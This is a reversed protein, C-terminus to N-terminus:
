QAANCLLALTFKGRKGIDGLAICAVRDTKRCSTYHGLSSTHMLVNVQWFLDSLNQHLPLTATISFMLVIEWQPAVAAPTMICCMACGRRSFIQKLPTDSMEVVIKKISTTLYAGEMESNYIGATIYHLIIIGGDLFLWLKCSDSRSCILKEFTSNNPLLLISLLASNEM